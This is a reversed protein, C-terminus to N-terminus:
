ALAADTQPPQNMFKSTLFEYREIWERGGQTKKLTDILLARTVEHVAKTKNGSRVIYRYQSASIFMPKNEDKYVVAFDTNVSPLIGLRSCCRVVVAETEKQSFPSICTLKAGVATYKKINIFAM